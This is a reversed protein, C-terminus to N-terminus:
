SLGNLLKRIIDEVKSNKDSMLQFILKEYLNTYQEDIEDEINGGATFFWDM